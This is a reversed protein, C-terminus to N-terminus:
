EKKRKKHKARPVYIGIDQAKVSIEWAYQISVGAREAAIDPSTPSTSYIKMLEAEKEGPGKRFREDSIEVGEAKLKRAVRYVLTRGAVKRQIIEVTSVNNRLLQEVLEEKQGKDLPVSVGEQRLRRITDYFQSDGIAVEQRAQRRTGNRKLVERIRESKEGKTM